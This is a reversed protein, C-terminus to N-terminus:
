SGTKLRIEIGDLFSSGKKMSKGGMMENMADMEGSDIEEDSGYEGEDESEGCMCDDLSVLTLKGKPGVKLSAMADFTGGEAVGEPMELDAPADFTLSKAM